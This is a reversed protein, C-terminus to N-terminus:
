EQDAQQKALKILRSVELHTETAIVDLAATFDETLIEASPAILGALMFGTKVVIYTDGDATERKFLRYGNEEDAFPALLRSNIYIIGHPARLPMYIVGKYQIGIDSIECEREGDDTDEFNYKGYPLICEDYYVKDQKDDSIDMLKFITGRTLPPFNYLPYIASGNGIWQMNVEGDDTDNYVIITKKRKCLQAITNFKM